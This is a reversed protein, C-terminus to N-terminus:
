TARTASCVCPDRPSGSCGSTCLDCLVWLLVLGSSLTPDWFLTVYFTFLTSVSEFIYEFHAGFVPAFTPPQPPPYLIKELPFV